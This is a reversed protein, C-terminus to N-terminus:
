ALRLVLHGLEVVKLVKTFLYHHHAFADAPRPRNFVSEVAGSFFLRLSGTHPRAPFLSGTARSREPDRCIGDFWRSPRRIRRAPKAAKRASDDVKYRGKSVMAECGLSRMENAYSQGTM